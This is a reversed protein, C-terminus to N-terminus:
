QITQNPFVTPAKRQIRSKYTPSPTPNPPQSTISRDIVAGGPAARGTQPQGTTGGGTTGGGTAAGGTPPQAPPSTEVPYSAPVDPNLSRDTRPPSPFRYHKTWSLVSDLEGSSLKVVSPVGQDNVRLQQGPLLKIQTPLLVTASGKILTVKTLGTTIEINAESDLILNLNPAEVCTRERKLHVQGKLMRILICKSQALWQFLPDTNEDLQLYGGGSFELLASSRSGTRVSSGLSVTDGDKAPRDDIWVKDGAVRLTGISGGSQAYSQAYGSVVLLIVVSIRRIIQSKM